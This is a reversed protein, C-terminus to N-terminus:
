GLGRRILELTKRPLEPDFCDLVSVDPTARIWTLQRKALQRTAYIGQALLGERDLAGELYQWAQRYGVSRMSPLDPSLPYRRRLEALEDVLGAQLMAAFRAEIRRHLTARDGPALAIGLPRFRPKAASRLATLGSMPKGTLRFVELARQIRQADNPNVRAATEPDIAALEAHMAPWGRGTAEAEIQARVSADAEPLESLGERLSKFYLMTGGVLLPLRGRSAIEAMVRSADARFRAASYAEDPPILDILHHPVESREAASPKATGIDMGRYVQASDVSVIEVPLERAIEMALRTKGSATPGMLLLAPPLTTL